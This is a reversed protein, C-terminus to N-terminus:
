SARMAGSERVMLARYGFCVSEIAVIVIGMIAWASWPLDESLYALLKWFCFALALSILSSACAYLALVSVIVMVYPPCRGHINSIGM